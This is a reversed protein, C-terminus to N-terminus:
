SSFALIRVRLQKKLKEPETVHGLQDLARRQVDVAPERDGLQRRSGAVGLVQDVAQRVPVAAQAELVLLRRHRQGGAGAVHPRPRRRAVGHAEMGVLGLRALEPGDGAAGAGLLCPWRPQQLVPPRLHLHTLQARGAVAALLLGRDGALLLHHHAELHQPPVRLAPENDFADLKPGDVSKPRLTGKTYAYGGEATTTQCRHQSVSQEASETQAAAKRCIKTM